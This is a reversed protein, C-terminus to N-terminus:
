EAAVRLSPAADKVKADVYPEFNVFNERFLNVLKMATEDFDAKSAWTKVPDLIHPEVGPVSTPVALGFHPDTRFDARNLSGDLAAALLRRTARIPM